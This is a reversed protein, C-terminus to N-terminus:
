KGKKLAKHKEFKINWVLLRILIITDPDDENFINDLNINDIDIDLIAMENRSFVVNGSDENFYLINEDAYLVTFLEKILKSTVFSDPILKLAALSYDAAKDCMKQTKYQDARYVILFPDESVVRGCM